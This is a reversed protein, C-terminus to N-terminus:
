LNRLDVVDIFTRSLVQQNTGVAENSVFTIRMRVATVRPFAGQAWVAITNALVYNPALVGANDQTLYELQMDQVGEVIEDTQPVATGSVSTRFLSRGGRDNNGIYWFASSLRVIFGGNEFTKGTGNPTCLTPFGLGKTCNGPDGGGTNHVITGNAQNANTVQFIAASYADCAVIVDGTNIGPNNLNLKFQAAVPDHSSINLGEIATGNILLIADTTAVRNGTAGGVPVIATALDGGASNEFGRVSGAAWNAWWLNASNNLTNAIQRTGCPNGGAERLDRALLEFAVRANEQVHAMNESVRFAQRNAVFISIVGGMVVLGLVIAIMLEVLSFGRSGRVLTKKM